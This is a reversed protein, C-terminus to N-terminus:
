FPTELLQQRELEERVEPTAIRLITSEAQVRMAEERLLPLLGDVLEARQWPRLSTECTSDLLDVPRLYSSSGWMAFGRLTDGPNCPDYSLYTGARDM